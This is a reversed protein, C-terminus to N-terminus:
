HDDTLRPGATSALASKASKLTRLFKRSQAIRTEIEDIKSQLFAEGDFDPPATGPDLQRVLVVLDAITLGAEQAERIMSLLDVTGDPYHRYTNTRESSAVSRILGNREYFRITDRSLRSRKALEGIRVTKDERAWELYVM